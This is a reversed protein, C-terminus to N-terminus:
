NNIHNSLKGNSFFSSLHSHFNPPCGLLPLYTTMTTLSFVIFCSTFIHDHRLPCPSSSTFLLFLFVIDQNQRLFSFTYFFLYSTTTFAHVFFFTSLIFSFPFLSCLSPMSQQSSASPNDDSHSLTTPTLLWLWSTLIEYIYPYPKEEMKKEVRLEWESEM